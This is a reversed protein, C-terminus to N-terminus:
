NKVLKLAFVLKESAFYISITKDYNVIITFKEQKTEQKPKSFLLMQDVNKPVKPFLLQYKGSIESM